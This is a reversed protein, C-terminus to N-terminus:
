CAFCFLGEDEPQGHAVSSLSEADGVHVMRDGCAFRCPCYRSLRAKPAVQAPGLMLEIYFILASFAVFAFFAPQRIRSSRVGQHGHSPGHDSHRIGFQVANGCRFRNRLRNALMQPLAPLDARGVMMRLHQLESSPQTKGRSVFSPSERWLLNTQHSIGDLVSGRRLSAAGRLSRELCRRRPDLARRLRRSGVRGLSGSVGQLGWSGGQGSFSRFGGYASHVFLRVRACRFGCAGCTRQACLKRDRVFVRVAEMQVTKARNM